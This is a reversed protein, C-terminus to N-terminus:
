TSPSRYISFVYLWSYAKFAMVKQWPSPPTGLAGGVHSTTLVLQHSMAADHFSVHTGRDVHISYSPVDFQQLPNHFMDLHTKLVDWNAQSICDQTKCGHAIPFEFPGHIFMDIHTLNLWKWFPCLKHRTVYDEPTDSPCILTHTWSLNLIKSSVSLTINCSIISTSPMSVHTALISIYFDLLFCGDQLCSPYASMCEPLAVHVLRWECADNQGISNSIFFLKDSSQIISWTLTNLPPLAPYPYTPTTPPPGTYMFPLTSISDGLFFKGAVGGGLVLSISCNQWDTGLPKALPICFRQRDQPFPRHGQITVIVHVGQYRGGHLPTSCNAQAVSWVSHWPWQSTRITHAQHPVSILWFHTKKKGHPLPVTSSNTRHAKSLLPSRGHALSHTSFNTSVDKQLMLDFQVVPLSSTELWTTHPDLQRSNILKCYYAWQEQVLLHAVERLAALRTALGQSYSEVSNPSSTPEWHKNTLILQFCLNSALQLSAALYAPARFLAYMGCMCSSYSLKTHLVSLTTCM